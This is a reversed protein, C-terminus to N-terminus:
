LLNPIVNLASFRLSMLQITEVQANLPFGLQVISALPLITQPAQMDKPVHLAHTLDRPVQM